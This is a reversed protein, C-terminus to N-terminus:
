GGSFEPPQILRDSPHFTTFHVLQVFVAQAVKGTSMKLTNAITERTNHAPESSKDNISLLEQPHNEGHEVGAQKQKEKGVKALEDKNQLELEIKWADTLNRRSLQNKRIWIRAQVRDKFEIDQTPCDLWQAESNGFHSVKNSKNQTKWVNYIPPTYNDKFEFNLLVKEQFSKSFNAITKQTVGVAMAIEDQGYCRLWLEFAKDKQKEKEEKITRSLWKSVTGPSVSLEKAIDAQNREHAAKRIILSGYPPYELTVPKFFFPKSM